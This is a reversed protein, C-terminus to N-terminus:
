GFAFLRNNASTMGRDIEESDPNRELVKLTAMEHILCIRYQLLCMNLQMFIVWKDFSKGM